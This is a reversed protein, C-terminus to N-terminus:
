RTTFKWVASSTSGNASKAVVRWYYTAKRSLKRLSVSTSKLNSKYLAPSKGKGFYVDYTKARAASYWALSKPTTTSRKKPSKLVPAAPAAPMPVSVSATNSPSSTGGSNFARVRYWYSAGASTTRDQFAVVGSGPQGVVAFNVGNTSREVKFGSENTSRDVWRVDVYPSTSALSAAANTPASPPAVAASAPYLAQVANVDDQALFRWSTACYANWTAYMTATSDASHRIGIFHGFEHAAIDEIYVGGSCGSQGTFFKNSADYFIMDADLLHNSSDAWWYTAATTTGSSENRFFIENKGNYVLSSGGTRGAYYLSVDATTQNKWYASAAQLAATAASESVDLNVPNVYFPIQSSAWRKGSLVYASLHAGAAVLPVAALTAVFLRRSM